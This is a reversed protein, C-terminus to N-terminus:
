NQKRRIAYMAIGAAVSVNLSSKQGHMPIQLHRDCVKLVESSVGTVENGFILAINKKKFKADFINESKETQEIAIIEFGQSKLKEGAQLATDCHEWPLFNEAGLSVKEIRRDPPCGTYRCLYIKEFRAADATRFISGVNHLSRINDLIVICAM